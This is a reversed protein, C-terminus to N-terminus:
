KRRYTLAQRGMQIWAKEFVDRKVERNPVDHLPDNIYVFHEDFGVMLVSHMRYTIPLVGHRTNWLRFDGDALPEFTDNTVIWVPYGDRVRDLIDEMQCGTLNIIAGPLYKEALKLIPRHYVGIGDTEFSYMDGVFGDNLHGHWEGDKFPVKDIAEALEMKSVQIGAHGLLMCLSTVECGRPLEPMQPVFPAELIYQTM